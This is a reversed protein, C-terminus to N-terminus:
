SSSPYHRARPPPTSNSFKGRSPSSIRSIRRRDPLSSDPPSASPIVNIVWAPFGTFRPCFSPPPPQAVASVRSKKKSIIFSTERSRCSRGKRGGGYFQLVHLVRRYIRTNRAHQLGNLDRNEMTYEYIHTHIYIHIYVPCRHVIVGVPPPPSIRSSRLDNKRIGHIGLYGLSSIFSPLFPPLSSSPTPFVRPLSLLKM